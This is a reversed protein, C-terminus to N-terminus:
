SVPNPSIISIFYLQDNFTLTVVSLVQVARQEVSIRNKPLKFVLLNYKAFVAFSALFLGVRLFIAFYSFNANVIQSQM